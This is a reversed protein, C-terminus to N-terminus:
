SIEWKNEKELDTIQVDYEIVSYCFIFSGLLFSLIFLPSHFFDIFADGSLITVFLSCLAHICLVCSFYTATLIVAKFLRTFIFKIM